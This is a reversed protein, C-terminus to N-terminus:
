NRMRYKQLQSNELGIRIFYSLSVKIQLNKM